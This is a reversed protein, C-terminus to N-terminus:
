WLFFLLVWSAVGVGVAGAMAAVAALRPGLRPTARGTIKWALWLSWAAAAGLLLIRLSGVFGMALGEARLMTITTASLGLFVGCGAIPILSQALHHFRAFSWHGLAATALALFAAVLASVVITTLAVYALHVAGDLLNMSDNRAPYDTLIWWPPNIGLVFGFGHEVLLAAAAQKMEIFWPSASWHFAGAAIGMLGVVIL